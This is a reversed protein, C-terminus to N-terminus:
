LLLNMVTEPQARILRYVSDTYEIGSRGGVAESEFLLDIPLQGQSNRASLYAAGYKELLIAIIAHNAGRCACHLVTNQCRDKTELACSYLGILYEIVSVSVHFQCAVHLPLMGTNDLCRIASSNGKVLLKISGLCTNEQLAKHLPLQGDEDPTTILHHPANMQRLDKSHCAYDLQGNLFTRIEECHRHLSVRVGIEEIEIAEPYADYLIQLIKLLATDVATDANVSFSYHSCAVGFPLRERQKQLVVDPNCDLLFQVIEIAAEPNNARIRREKLSLIAHHIPFYGDSDTVNISGPYLQYFFKATAVANFECAFHFPLMGDGMTMRESGPYAESLIRCFEPSQRAAACHILLEGGSTAHRLVEPFREVIMKIFKKAVEENTCSNMCFLHLFTFGNNDEHRLSDPFADILLLTKELTCNKNYYFIIYLPLLGAADAHRVADPFYELLCRIIEVTVRENRCVNHFFAYNIITSNNPTDHREIITRLGAESLSDSQCFEFLEQSNYLVSMTSTQRTNM